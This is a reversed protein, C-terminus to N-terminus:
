RAAILSINGVQLAGLTCILIYDRDRPKVSTLVFLFGGVFFSIENRSFGASPQHAFGHLITEQLTEGVTSM